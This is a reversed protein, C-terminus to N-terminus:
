LFLHKRVTRLAADPDPYPSFIADRVFCWEAWSSWPVLKRGTKHGGAGGTEEAAEM